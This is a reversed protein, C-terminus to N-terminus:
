GVTVWKSKEKENDNLKEKQTEEQLDAQNEMSVDDKNINEQCGSELEESTGKVTASSGLVFDSTQECDPSMRRGGDGGDEVQHDSEISLENNGDEAEEPTDPNRTEELKVEATSAKEVTLQLIERDLKILINSLKDLILDM